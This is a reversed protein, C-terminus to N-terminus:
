FKFVYKKDLRYKVGYGIILGISAGIYKASSAEFFADFIIEFAWFIITPFVSMFSYLFFFKYNDKKEQPEYYFIYNKDLIYKVILGAFTGSLMAVILAGNYSYIYFSLYQFLLNFISSIVAFISYKLAKL